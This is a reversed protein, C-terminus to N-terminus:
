FLSSNVREKIIKISEIEGSTLKEPSDSKLGFVERLLDLYKRWALARKAKIKEVKQYEDAELQDPSKQVSIKESKQVLSTKRSFNRNIFDIGLTLKHLRDITANVETLIKKNMKNQWSLPLSKAKNKSFDHREDQQNIKLSQRRFDLIDLDLTFKKLFDAKQDTPESKQLFNQPINEVTNKYVQFAELVETMDQLSKKNMIDLHVTRRYFEEYLTQDDGEFKPNKDIFNLDVTCKGCEFIPKGVPKLNPCKNNWSFDATKRTRSLNDQLEPTLVEDILRKNMIFIDVTRCAIQIPESWNLDVPLNRCIPFLSLTPKSIRFEQMDEALPEFTVKSNGIDLDLTPKLIIPKDSYKESTKVKKNTIDISLTRKFIQNQLGDTNKEEDDDISRRNIPSDIPVQFKVKELSSNEISEHVVKQNLPSIEITRPHIVPVEIKVGNQSDIPNPNMPLNDITGYKVFKKPSSGEEITKEIPQRNIPFVGAVQFKVPNRKNEQNSLVKLNRLLKKLPSVGTSAKVSKNSDAFDDSSVNENKYELDLQDSPISQEKTQGINEIPEDEFDEKLANELKEDKLIKENKELIVNEADDNKTDDKEIENIQEFSHRGFIEQDSTLDVENETDHPSAVTDENIDSSDDDASKMENENEEIKTDTAALNKLAGFFGGISELVNNDFTLFNEDTSEASDIVAEDKIIDRNIEEVPDDIDDSGNEITQDEAETDSNQLFKHKVDELHLDLQRSNGEDSQLDEKIAKDTAQEVTNEVTSTVSVDNFKVTMDDIAEPKKPTEESVEEVADDDPDEIIDKSNELSSDVVNIEADDDSLNVVHNESEETAYDVVIDNTFKELISSVDEFNELPDTLVDEIPGIDDDFKKIADEVEEFVDVLADVNDENKGLIQEIVDETADDDIIRTVDNEIIQLDDGADKEVVDETIEKIEEVSNETKELLEEVVDQIADDIIIKLVDDGVEDKVFDEIVDKIEEVSNEPKDSSEEFFDEVAVTHDSLDDMTDTVTNGITELKLDLGDDLNVNNLDNKEFNAENKDSNEDVSSNERSRKTEFRRRKIPIFRDNRIIM